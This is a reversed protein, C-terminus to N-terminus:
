NSKISYVKVGTVDCSGGDVEYTMGSATKRLEGKIVIDDTKDIGLTTFKITATVAPQHTAGDGELVFATSTYDGEVIIIDNNSFSVTYVKASEGEGSTVKFTDGNLTYALVYNKFQSWESQANSDKAKKTFSTYGLISVTALIALIAIVVLLEVLTFGKKKNKM